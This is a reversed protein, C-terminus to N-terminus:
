APPAPFAPAAGQLVKQDDRRNERTVRGGGIRAKFAQGLEEVTLGIALPRLRLGGTLPLALNLAFPHQAKHAPALFQRWLFDLLEPLCEM